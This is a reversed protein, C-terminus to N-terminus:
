PILDHAAPLGGASRAESICRYLATELVDAAVSGLITLNTTPRECTSVVFVTDGDHPTHVPRIARPLADHAMHAIRTAAPKDLTANTAIVALTTQQGEIPARRQAFIAPADPRRLIQMSNAFGGNALDRVGAIITDGQWVDGFANCVALAGIISGDPLTESWTGIGSKTAAAHGLLKGVTAGTGVGITGEPTISQAAVCAAYGMEADAWRNHQGLVLDFIVAAPVLPVRTVGVDYGIGQEALWQTVGTAAALGFASGGCLAIAHIEPVSAVPSLLDTERTGPGGGRVDVGGVFRGRTLIVTCGTLAIMDTAHGVLLGPVDAITRSTHPM